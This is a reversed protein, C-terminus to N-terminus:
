LDVEDSPVVAEEICQMVMEQDLYNGIVHQAGLAELKEKDGKLRVGVFNIGMNRTTAVDWKADGFYVIKKFQGCKAVAQNISHQLIEERAVHGDAFSMFMNNTNINVHNLKVTAPAMWGGTGIGIEFEDMTHLKDTISKAGDVELFGTPNSIRMKQILTVFHTRFSEVEEVDPKRGFENQIMTDFISTDTVHPYVKWDISPIPRNYVNQFTTAFAKSDVANSYLLTGDIDFIVLTKKNNKM